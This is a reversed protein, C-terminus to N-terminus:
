GEVAVASDKVLGLPIRNRIAAARWIFVAAGIAFIVAAVILAGTYSGTTDRFLSFVYPAGISCVSFIVVIVSFAIAFSREGLERPIFYGMMETEGGAVAAFAIIGVLAMGFSLPSGLGLLLAGVFGLGLFVVAVVYRPLVDLLLGSVVRGLAAAVFFMSLITAASAPDLGGTTLVPFMNALFGGVPMVMFAFAIGLAWVDGNRVASRLTTLPEQQDVAEILIATNETTETPDAQVDKRIRIGWLSVPVTIVLLIGAIVLYGARWGWQGIVSVLIPSLIAVSVGATLGMLSLAKGASKRFWSVVTRNWPVMSVAAVFAGAVLGFGYYVPLILPLSVFIGISAVLGILGFLVVRKPGFRQVAKGVFPTSIATVVGMIPSLLVQSSTWGTDAIIPEIFLSSTNTIMVGATGWGVAAAVAPKWGARWENPTKTLVQNMEDGNIHPDPTM